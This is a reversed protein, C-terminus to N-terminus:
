LFFFGGWLPKKDCDKHNLSAFVNRRRRNVLLMVETVALVSSRFELIDRQQSIFSQHLSNQLGSRWYVQKRGTPGRLRLKPAEVHEFLCIRPGLLFHWYSCKDDPCKNYFSFNGHHRTPTVSCQWYNWCIWTIKLKKRLPFLYLTSSWLQKDRKFCLWMNIHNDISVSQNEATCWFDVFLGFWLLLCVDPCHLSQYIHFGSLWLIEGRWPLQGSGTQPWFQLPCFTRTSATHQTWLVEWFRKWSASRQCTVMLDNTKFVDSGWRMEFSTHASLLFLYWLRNTPNTFSCSVAKSGGTTLIPVQVNKFAANRLLPWLHPWMLCFWMQFTSNSATHCYIFHICIWNLKRQIRQISQLFNLSRLECAWVRTHSPAAASEVRITWM